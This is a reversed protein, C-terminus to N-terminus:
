ADSYRSFAATEQSFDLGPYQNQLTRMRHLQEEQFARHAPIHPHFPRHRAAATIQEIKGCVARTDETFFANSFYQWVYEIAMESPHIMDAEYFRYDRLDDMLLEYAPFYCSASPPLAQVLAECALLLVAKSRQNEIMGLRLHRVPSVTFVVRIRPWKEFFARLVEQLRRVVEEVTLRRTDFTAAPMKHNNAVVQGTAKLLHVVATGPTLILCTCEEIFKRAEDSAKQMASLSQEPQPHAFRSHYAWSRWLGGNEFLDNRTFQRDGRLLQELTEAVSVPNYVIGCPNVLAKIKANQLRQGIHETFCSGMLLVRDAHNLRFPAAFAPAPTRFNM